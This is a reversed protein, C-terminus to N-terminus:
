MAYSGKRTTIGTNVQLDCRKMKKNNIQFPEKTKNYIEGIFSSSHKRKRRKLGNNEEVTKIKCSSVPGQIIKTSFDDEQSFEIGLSKNWLGRFDEVSASGHDGGEQILEWVADMEWLAMNFSSPHKRKRMKLGKNEEVTIKKCSSVSGQVFKTSSGDEKHSSEIELSKNWFRRFDEVSASGHDVGDQILEWVSDMEWMAM